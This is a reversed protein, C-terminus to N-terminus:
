RKCPLPKKPCKPKIAGAKVIAGEECAEVCAGCQICEEQDIVHIFKKKGLIAEEECADECDTCGICLDPLIHYTVFKKCVGALCSKKTIHEAIEDGFEQLASLVLTAASMGVECVSQEKMQSCLEVLLTIDEPRGKKQIIDSVILRIQTVGEHGFVCRGCCEQGYLDMIKALRDLMCDTENYLEIYDTTITIPELFRDRGFVLGMPHGFYVAKCTEEEECHSLLEQITTEKAVSIIGPKKVRGDLYIQKTDSNLLEEVQYVEEVGNVAAPIPKEGELLRLLASHNTFVFGADQDAHIVEMGSFGEIDTAHKPLILYCPKEENEKRLREIQEKQELFLQLAQGAKAHIPVANLVQYSKM